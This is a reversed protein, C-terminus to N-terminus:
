GAGWLKWQNLDCIKEHFIQGFDLVENTTLGELVKSLREPDASESGGARAQDIFQWFQDDTLPM